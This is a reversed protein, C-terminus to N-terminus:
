LFLSGVQFFILSCVYALATLLIFQFVMWRWSGTEQWTVAMTSICPFTLLMFILVSVGVLPSYHNGITESLQMDDGDEGQEIAFVVGLQSVFMEKAALAGLLATSLRWDFGIPAMVPEMAKGVTGLLSGELQAKSIAVEEQQTLPGEPREVRPYNALGWLIISMGLVVTGAKKMYLWANEWMAHLITKLRPRKYPPLEMVFPTNDGSLLTKRLLRAVMLAMFIGTMYVLFLITGQLYSPFFAPILLIFIPLRAGCPVLPITMITTIRDRRNELTRAAMIAPVSCGLGLLMPVFSKGHLGIRHMFSDMIFAARAMYGTNELLSIGLFLLVINPIFVAVGGVGPIMGDAVLSRSWLPLQAPWNNRVVQSLLDFGMGLWQVPYSGISFTLSFLLYMLGLFIPLGLQRHILVQDIRKTIDRLSTQPERKCCERILGHAFGFRADAILIDLSGSERKSLQKIETEIKAELAPDNLGAGLLRTLTEQDQELLKVTIFRPALEEPAKAAVAPTLVDLARDINKGYKINAPEGPKELRQSIAQLLEHKGMGRHAETMVVPCKLRDGLLLTSIKWGDAKAEDTMNLAVVLNLRAEMLQTLFYFSRELSTSDLVAIVVDPHKVLLQDHTIEEEPSVPSLWWKLL